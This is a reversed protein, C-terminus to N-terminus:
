EKWDVTELKNDLIPTVIAYDLCVLRGEFIGFNERKIDQLFLPLRKPLKYHSPVADCKKQLLLRGDPSLFECPALWRAISKKNQFSCWIKMEQVNSFERLIDNDVKVVLDPRLKCNYVTRYYGEGIKDGCLLNFCDEFVKENM